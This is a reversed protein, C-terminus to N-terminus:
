RSRYAPSNPASRQHAGGIRLRSVLLAGGVTRQDITNQMPGPCGCDLLAGGRKPVGLGIRCQLRQQSLDRGARGPDGVGVEIPGAGAAEGVILEKFQHDGGRHPM